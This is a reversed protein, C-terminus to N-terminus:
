CTVKKWFAPAGVGVTRRTLRDAGFKASSELAELAECIRSQLDTLYREVADIRPDHM